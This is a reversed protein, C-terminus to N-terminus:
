AVGRAWGPVEAVYREVVPRGRFYYWAVLVQYPVVVVFLTGYILALMLPIWGKMPSLMEELAPTEDIYKKLPDESVFASLVNLGFYLGLVIGLGLQNWGRVCAGGRLRGLLFVLGGLAVGWGM